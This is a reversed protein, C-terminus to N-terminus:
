IQLGPVLPTNARISSALAKSCCSTLVSVETSMRAFRYISMMIDFSTNTRTGNSFETFQVSIRIYQVKLTLEYM